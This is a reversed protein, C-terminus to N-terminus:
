GAQKPDSLQLANQAVGDIRECPRARGKLLDKYGVKVMQRAEAALRQTQRRYSSSKWEIASVRELGPYLALGAVKRVTANREGLREITDLILLLTTLRHRHYPTPRLFRPTGTGGVLAAVSELRAEIWQDARCLFGAKKPEDPRSSLVIRHRGRRGDVILHRTDKYVRDTVIRRSSLIRDLLSKDEVPIRADIIFPADRM